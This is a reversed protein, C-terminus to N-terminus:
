DGAGRDRESDVRMEVVRLDVLSFKVFRLEKVLM